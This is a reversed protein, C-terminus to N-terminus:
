RCALHVDVVRGTRAATGATFDFSAQEVACNRRGDCEREVAFATPLSTIGYTSLPELEGADVRKDRDWDSWAVLESFRPDAESVTGDGNDDLEALAEFGNSARMGSHLVSGSGFLERGGDINGDQDLDIALWPTVATPWDHGGCRGIGDIDFPAAASMAEYEIPRDGFALVLPTGEEGGEDCDQQYPVGDVGVICAAQSLDSCAQNGPTCELDALCEGWIRPLAEEGDYDSLDYACYQVGDVLAGDAEFDCNRPREDTGPCTQGVLDGLAEADGGPEGPDADQDDEDQDAQEDNDIADEDGSQDEIPPGPDCGMALSTVLLSLSTRMMLTMM